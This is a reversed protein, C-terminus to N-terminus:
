KIILAAAVKRGDMALLNFTRCAAATDMIEHGLNAQILPSLIAASPFHQKSGTGILVLELKLQLLIALDNATLEQITQPSWNPLLQNYAVILSKDYPIDNIVLNGPHYSKILYPQAGKEENLLM